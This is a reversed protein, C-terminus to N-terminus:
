GRYIRHLEERVTRDTEFYDDTASRDPMEAKGALVDFALNVAPADVAGYGIHLYEPYGQPVQEWTVPLSSYLVLGSIADCVSGDEEQRKPRASATKFLVEKWEDLTFKGDKLPGRSVLGARGRAAVGKTVGTSDDGLIRRAEILIRGAGGAAFPTAGSTGGGVSDASKKTQDHYAAWSNCADSVVHPPFDPWLTVYGSDHGGVMVVSPTMRPDLPTPHGILGFRTLTGNGSAWFALHKKATDEVTRVFEPDNFLLGGAGTPTWLPFTPGWSNSQADIWDANKAAWRVSEVSFGQVAVVRCEPCAGYGNGVARSATMTGHAGADIIRGDVITRETCSLPQAGESFTIGGVIKTGPFWYLQGPKVKNWLDCDKHLATWYDKENLSIRLAEADKPFGDIYTSPHEFARRSDDRFVVHYPNIGTDIVAVVSTPESRRMVPSGAQAGPLTAVTLAAALVIVAKRM